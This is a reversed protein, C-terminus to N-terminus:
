LAGEEKEKLLIDTQLEKGTCQPELRQFGHIVDGRGRTRWIGLAM